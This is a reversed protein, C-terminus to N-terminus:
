ILPEQIYTPPFLNGQRQVDEIRQCAIEYYERRKEVGIFRRGLKLCAVGTTGSGMFPDLVTEGADTFLRIWDQMLGVPKPTPHGNNREVAMEWVASLGGGNWRLKGDARHLIAIAEWGQAPRDGSFQPAGNSKVWCGVRVFRLNEPPQNELLAAHRFEMSAVVWRRVIRGVMDFARRVSSEDMHFDICREADGGHPSALRANKQTEESYPPDTICHDMEGLTPLIDFADALYLTAAGFEEKRM